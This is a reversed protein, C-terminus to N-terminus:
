PAQYRRSILKGAANFRLELRERRVTVVGSTAPEPTITVRGLADVRTMQPFRDMSRIVRTSEWVAVRSGDPAKRMKQPSGLAKVVELYSLKGVGKAWRDSDLSEAQILNADLVFFLLM